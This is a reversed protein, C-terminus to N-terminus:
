AAPNVRANIEAAKILMELQGTFLQPTPTWTAGNDAAYRLLKTRSNYELTPGALHQPPEGLPAVLSVVDAAELAAQLAPNKTHVRWGTQGVGLIARDFQVSWDHGGSVGALAVDFYHYRGGGEDGSYMNRNPVMSAQVNHGRYNGTLWSTAGGGGDGAVKGNVQSVLPGWANTLRANKFRYLLYGFIFVFVLFIALVIAGFLMDNM